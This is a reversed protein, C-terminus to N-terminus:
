KLIGLTESYEGFNGINGCFEWYERHFNVARLFERSNQMGLWARGRGTKFNNSVECRVTFNNSLFVVDSINLVFPAELVLSSIIFMITKNCLSVSQDFNEGSDILLEANEIKLKGDPLFFLPM